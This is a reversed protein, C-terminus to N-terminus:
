EILVFGAWYFPSYKAQMEKQAMRLAQKASGTKLYHQYFIGMLEATEKDPIRWLTVLMQRVGASKLARQLGFIGESDYVDGLGTECSSLVVLDTKYLDLNSIEYATLIGDDLGEIPRKGQWVRNAGTLV